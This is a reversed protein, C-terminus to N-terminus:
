LADPDFNVEEDLDIYRAKWRALVGPNCIVCTDVYLGYLLGPGPDPMPRIIIDYGQFTKHGRGARRQQYAARLHKRVEPHNVHRQECKLAYFTMQEHDPLAAAVVFRQCEPCLNAKGQHADLTGAWCPLVLPCRDCTM